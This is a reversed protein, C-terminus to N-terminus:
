GDLSQGLFLADNHTVRGRRASLRTWLRRRALGVLDDLPRGTLAAAETASAVFAAGRWSRGVEIARAYARQRWPRRLTLWNFPGACRDFVATVLALRERARRRNPARVIIHVELVVLHEKLKSEAAGAEALRERTLGRPSPSYSQGTLGFALVERLADRVSRGLSRQLSSDGATRGARLAEVVTWGRRRVRPTIPSAIGRIMVGEDRTLGDFALDLDLPPSTALDDRLPLAWSRMPRLYGGTTYRGRRTTM